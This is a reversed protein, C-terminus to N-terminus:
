STKKYYKGNMKWGKGDLANTAGSPKNFNVIYPKNKTGEGSKINNNYGSEKQWGGLFTGPQGAFPPPPIRPLKGGTLGKYGNKDSGSGSSPKGGVLISEMKTGYKDLTIIETKPANPQVKISVDGTTPITGRTALPVKFTKPHGLPFPLETALDVQKVSKDNGFYLTIGHKGPQVEANIGDKSREEAWNIEKNKNYLDPASTRNKFYVYGIPIVIFTTIIMLISLVTIFWLSLSNAAPPKECGGNGRKSCEEYEKKAKNYSKWNYYTLTMLLVTLIVLFLYILVSFVFGLEM